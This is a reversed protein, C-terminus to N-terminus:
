AKSGHGLGEVVYSRKTVDVDLKRGSARVYDPTWVPGALRAKKQHGRTQEPRGSPPHIPLSADTWTCDAPEMVFAMTVQIQGWLLVECRYCVKNAISGTRRLIRALAKPEGSERVPWEACQR